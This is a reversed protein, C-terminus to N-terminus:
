FEGFIRPKAKAYAERASSLINSAPQDLNACIVLDRKFHITGEEENIEWTLGSEAMEELKGRIEKPVIPLAKETKSDQLRPAVSKPKPKHKTEGARLMDILDVKKDRPSFKIGKEKLATRLAHVPLKELTVPEEETM